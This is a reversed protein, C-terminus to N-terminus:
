TEASHHQKHPLPELPFLAVQQARLWSETVEGAVWLCIPGKQHQNRPPHTQTCELVRHTESICDGILSPTEGVAEVGM